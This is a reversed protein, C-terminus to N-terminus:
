GKKELSGNEALRVVFEEEPVPRGFLYGQFRECGVEELIKKQEATEVGEAVVGLSLARALVVITAVITRDGGSTDLDKVFSRDIKIQDVPLKRLYSLSSYGTGFDDISFAVGLARLADITGGVTEPGDILLSETIEFFIRSPDVGHRLLAERVEGCFGEERFQRVSLNVGLAFGEPLLGKASWRALAALAEETVFRGLPVILGSEEAAPIFRDPGVIGRVPHIWRLLAEAGRIKGSSDAQPQYFLRFQGGELAEQLDQTLASRERVASEMRPDFFRFAGKGARKAQYMALDAQRLIEERGGEKGDFLAIGVSTTTRYPSSELPYPERLSAVIKGALHEAERSAGPLDPSLNEAMVVFEDGGLRAVTDVARVIEKLRRGVHLLLDDGQAHGRTDNLVKFNDIDIFILAGRRGYRAAAELARDLRDFFLRRNPLGTLPDHFALTRIAEEASKRDTIDTHSGVYHTVRGERDRVATITLWKPYVEGNKRRDWIEGQWSGNAALEEWMARYFASDHRGSKLIRPTQGLVEEESYGTSAVFAGNVRLIRTLADTVMMSEASEFAIVAIRLETEIRRRETIDRILSLHKWSEGVQVRITNVEVPLEQGDSKRYASEFLARGSSEVGKWREAFGGSQSAAVFESVKRGVVEERSYGLWLCLTPNLDEIEGNEGVILIGDAASEFLTRFREESEKLRRLAEERDAIEVSSLLLAEVRGSGDRVPSVQLDIPLLGDETWVRTDYRVTEGKRARDLALLLQAHVAPDYTWRKRDAFSRGLLDEVRQGERAILTRSIEVIKGDLDLLAVHPFMNDFILRITRTRGRLTDLSEVAGTLRDEARARLSRLLGVASSVLLGDGLFVLNSWLSRQLVEWSVTWYPSVFVFTALPICLLTAFVGAPFGGFIASLAVAPFFTIYQLGAPVPAILLRLVFALAVVLLAVAFPFRPSREELLFAAISDRIQRSGRSSGKQDNGSM